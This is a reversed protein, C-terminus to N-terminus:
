ETSNLLLKQKKLTNINLDGAITIKKKVSHRLEMLMAELKNLFIHPDSDPTKYM